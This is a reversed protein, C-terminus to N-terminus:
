KTEKETTRLLLFPSITGEGTEKNSTLKYVIQLHERESERCM